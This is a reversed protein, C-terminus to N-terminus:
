QGEDIVAEMLTVGPEECWKLYWEISYRDARNELIDFRSYSLRGFDFWSWHEKWKYARLSRLPLHRHDQQTLRGWNRFHRLFLWPNAQSKQSNSSTGMKGRPSSDSDLTNRWKVMSHKTMSRQSLDLEKSMKLLDQIWRLPFASRCFHDFPPASWASTM